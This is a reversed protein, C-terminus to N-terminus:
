SSLEDRVMIEMKEGLAKERHCPNRSYKEVPKPPARSPFCVSVLTGVTGCHPLVEKTCGRAPLQSCPGVRPKQEDVRLELGQPFCVHM